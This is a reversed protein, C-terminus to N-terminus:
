VHVRIHLAASSAGRGAASRLIGIALAIVCATLPAAMEVSAGRGYRPPV